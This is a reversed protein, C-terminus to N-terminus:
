PIDTDCIVVSQYTGNTTFVMRDKGWEHSKVPRKALTVRRAGNISCFSRVKGSCMLKGRNKPLNTNSVRDRTKHAINQLDNNKGKDM